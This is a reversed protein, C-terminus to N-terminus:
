VPENCGITKVKILLNEKAKVLTYIMDNVMNIVIFKPTRRKLDSSGLGM